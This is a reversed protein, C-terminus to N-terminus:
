WIEFGKKDLLNGKSDLLEMEFKGEIGFFIPEMVITQGEDLEHKKGSVFVREGDQYGYLNGTIEKDEFSPDIILQTWVNRGKLFVTDEGICPNNARIDACFRIHALKNDQCGTAAIALLILILLKKTM